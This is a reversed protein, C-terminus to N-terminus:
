LEQIIDKLSFVFFSRFNYTFAFIMSAISCVMNAIRGMSDLIASANIDSNETPVHEM